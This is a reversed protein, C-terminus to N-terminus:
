RAMEAAVEGAVAFDQGVLVRETVRETVRQEVGM